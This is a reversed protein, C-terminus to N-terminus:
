RVMRGLCEMNDGYRCLVAEPSVKEVLDGWNARLIRRVCTKSTMEVNSGFM